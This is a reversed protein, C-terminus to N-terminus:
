GPALGIVITKGPGMEGVGRFRLYLFKGDSGWEASCFSCIRIPSSGEIPQAILPSFGALLLDGHPSDANFGVDADATMKRHAIGNSGVSSIFQQGGERVLIYIDGEPGFSPWQAESSTLQKPPTRRDLLAIWVRSVGGADPTWFAVREGDPAIDFGSILVGPLVSETRGSDIDAMWLEGSTWARSGRERVLYYLRKGDPSFTSHASAIGFGLGPM